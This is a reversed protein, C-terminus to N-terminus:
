QVKKWTADPDYQTLTKARLATKPGLDKQYITGDRNVIFTMVGSSRYEAPYAVFAFGSTMKGNVVYNKSGGRAHPGQRTLIRFYYGHFPRPGTTQTVANEFSALTLLRGVPAETKGDASEWYLGDHRGQDSLFKLAFQKVEGDHSDSYYENQAKVLERCVEITELENRGIRRVLIERRSAVPDIYWGSARRLFVIPVPWNEAGIYLTTRGDAERVLRHMERYKEVFQRHSKVDEAEDGASIIEKATPGLIEVLALQNHEQVAGILAACAAEASPFTKQATQQARAFSFSGSVFLMFATLALGAFRSIGSVPNVVNEPNVPHLAGAEVYDRIRLM